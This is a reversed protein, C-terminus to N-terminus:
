RKLKVRWLIGAAALGAFLPLLPAAYVLFGVKKGLNVGGLMIIYFSFLIVLSLFMAVAKNSRRGLNLGIPCSLLLLIVPAFSLVQRVMAETKADANFKEDKSTKVYAFLAPTSLEEPKVGRKRIKNFLSFGVKYEDFSAAAIAGEDATTVRQMQGNFLDIFIARSTIRVAGSEANVKTSLANADADKVLIVHRLKNGGEVEEAYLSWGGIEVKTKPEIKIKGIRAQVEHRADYFDKSMKPAFWNNAYFLVGSLILAFILMPKVIERFSFGSARLAMIEGAEGMSTLTLLVGLQFAMPATLCLVAPMTKMITGLVWMLDAGYEVAMSFIRIFYMFFFIASLVFVAGAFFMLLTKSIYKFIISM